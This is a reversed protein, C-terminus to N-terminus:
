PSSNLRPEEARGQAEPAAEPRGTSSYSFGAAAMEAQNYVKRLDVMVPAKMVRKMSTIDLGRFANWETLIAVADAGAMAEYANKCWAGGPLLPTAQRM